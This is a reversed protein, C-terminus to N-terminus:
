KLGGCQTCRGTRKACEDCMKRDSISSYSKIQWCVPCISMTVSPLSNCSHEGDGLDGPDIIRMENNRLSCIKGGFIINAKLPVLLWNFIVLALIIGITIVINKVKKNKM